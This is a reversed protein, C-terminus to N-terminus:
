TYQKSDCYELCCEDLMCVQEAAKKWIAAYYEVAYIYM